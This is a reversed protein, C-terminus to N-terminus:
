CDCHSEAKQTASLRQTKLLLYDANLVSKQTAPCNRRTDFQQCIVLVIQSAFVRHSEAKSNGIIALHQAASSRRTELLLHDAIIAKVKQTALCTRCTNLQLCDGHCSSM